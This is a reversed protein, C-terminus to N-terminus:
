QWSLKEQRFYGDDCGNGTPRWPLSCRPCTYSPSDTSRASSTFMRVLVRALRSQTGDDVGAETDTAAVGADVV